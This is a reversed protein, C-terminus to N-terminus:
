PLEEPREASASQVSRLGEITNVQEEIIDVVDKEVVEPSAGPYLISITVVGFEMQPLLQVPLRRLGIVGFVVLAATMMVALVPRRVSTDSLFM